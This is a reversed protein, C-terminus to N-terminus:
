TYPSYPTPPYPPPYGGVSHGNIFRGKGPRNLAGKACLMRV